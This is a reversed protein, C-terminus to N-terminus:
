IPSAFSTPPTAVKKSPRASDVKAVEKEIQLDIHEETREEIVKKTAVVKEITRAKKSIPEDENSGGESIPTKEKKNRKQKAQAIVQILLLNSSELGKTAVAKEVM